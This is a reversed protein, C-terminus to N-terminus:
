FDEPDPVARLAENPPLKPKDVYFMAVKNSKGTMKNPPVNPYGPDTKKAYTDVILACHGRLGIPNVWTAGNQEALDKRFEFEEGEGLTIGACQIFNNIKWGTSEHAILKERVKSGPKGDIELEMEFFDSGNTKGGNQIGCEFAVVTFIYDGAPLIINPQKPPETKYQM